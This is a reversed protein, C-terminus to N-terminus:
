FLHGQNLQTFLIIEVHLGLKTATRIMDWTGSHNKNGDWFAVLHTAYEAMKRNRIPGAKKGFRKWEAPFRKCCLKREQAYKEGLQDAGHCTGSVIEMSYDYIRLFSDLTDSLLKYNDFSRCGACIVRTDQYLPIIYPNM